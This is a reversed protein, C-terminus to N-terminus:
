IWAHHYKSAWLFVQEFQILSIYSASWTSTSSKYHLYQGGACACAGSTNLHCLTKLILRAKLRGSTHYSFAYSYSYSYHRGLLHSHSKCILDNSASTCHLRHMYICVLVLSHLAFCIFGFYVLLLTWIYPRTFGISLKLTLSTKEENARSTQIELFITKFYNTTFWDWSLYCHWHYVKIVAIVRTTNLM